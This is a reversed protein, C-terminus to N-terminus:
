YPVHLICTPRSSPKQELQQLTRLKALPQQSLTTTINMQEMDPQYATDFKHQLQELEMLIITNDLLLAEENQMPLPLPPYAKFTSGNDPMSQQNLKELEMTIATHQSRATEENIIPFSPYNKLILANDQIQQNHFPSHIKLPNRDIWQSEELIQRLHYTMSCDCQPNLPMIVITYEPAVFLISHSITIKNGKIKPM